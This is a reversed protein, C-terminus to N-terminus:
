PQEVLSRFKELAPVPILPYGLLVVADAMTLAYAHRMLRAARDADIKSLATKVRSNARVDDDWSVDSLESVVRRAREAAVDYGGAFSQALSLPSRDIQAIVGGMPPPEPQGQRTARFRAYLLRRRVATTQDYMIDKDALLSTAEGILPWRATRRKVVDKAASANVVILEDPVGPPPVPADDAGLRRDVQIPWETGMNDYVGGDVLLFRDPAEPRRNSFGFAEVKKSVPAFAGPLCASAQAAWSVPLNRPQGWGLRYSYLFRASFYVQEATQLDAAAIVHDVGVHMESLQKGHFLKADFSARAVASRRRALWGIVLLTVVWVGVSAVAGLPFCLWTAVALIAAMLLLYVYTWRWAWVTGGTSTATALPRVDSWFKAQQQEDAIASLDSNLGVYGNTLSGGSISAVSTLESGKGADVLYLLAGLGFLSARHGGGSLSVAIHPGVHEVTTVASPDEGANAM